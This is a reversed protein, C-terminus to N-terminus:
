GSRYNNTPETNTTDSDRQVLKANVLVQQSDSAAGEVVELLMSGLCEGAEILPQTMTTLTPITYAGVAIGDYGIFGIDKGPVLGREHAARMAGIAVMDTVCLVADPVSSSSDLIKRMAKEGGSLTLKSATIRRAQIELDNYQLGDKYGSLRSQAFNYEQPGGIYAIDRHGLKCLHNCAASFAEHNDVDFWAHDDSERTRGHTIFPVGLSKLTSVRPDNSLTRSLVFGNVRNTAALRKLQEIENDVSDAATIYLDWGRKLMANSLGSLLEALFPDSAHNSRAPLVYAICEAAGTALRRATPNPQYGAELAAAKVRKRTKEAIDPYDNLARSVTGDTLGLQQSLMRLSVKHTM